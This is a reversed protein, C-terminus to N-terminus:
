WRRWLLQDRIENSQFIQSQMFTEYNNLKENSLEWIICYIWSVLLVMATWTFWVWEWRSCESFITIEFWYNYNQLNLEGEIFEIASWYQNNFKVLDYKVVDIWDFMNIEKVIIWKKKVKRIWLYMKSKLKQKINIHWSTSSIWAPFRNFWFHWSIIFECKLFLEDKYKKLNSQFMRFM